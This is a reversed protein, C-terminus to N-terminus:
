VLTFIWGPSIFWLAHACWARHTHVHSRTNQYVRMCPARSTLLRRATANHIALWHDDMWADNYLGLKHCASCTLIVIHQIPPRRIQWGAAVWEDACWGGGRRAARGGVSSTRCRWLGSVTINTCRAAKIWVWCSSSINNKFCFLWHGRGCQAWFAAIICVWMWRM